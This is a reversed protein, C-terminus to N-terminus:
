CRRTSIDDLRERWFLRALIIELLGSGLANAVTFWVLWMATMRNSFFLWFGLALMIGGHLVAARFSIVSTIIGPIFPFRDRAVRFDELSSVQNCLFLTRM